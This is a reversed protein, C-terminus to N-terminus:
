RRQCQSPHPSSSVTILKSTLIFYISVIPVSSCVLIGSPTDVNEASNQLSSSTADDLNDRPRSGEVRAEGGNLCYGKILPGGWSLSIDAWECAQMAGCMTAVAALVTRHDVIENGRSVDSSLRVIARLSPVAEDSLPVSDRQRSHPIGQSLEARVISVILDRDHADNESWGDSATILFAEPSLRGEDSSYGIPCCKPKKGLHQGAALVTLARMSELTPTTTSTASAFGFFLTEPTPEDPSRGLSVEARERRAQRISPQVLTTLAVVSVDSPSRGIRAWSSRESKFSRFETVCKKTSHFVQLESEGGISVSLTLLEKLERKQDNLQM